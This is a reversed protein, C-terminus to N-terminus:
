AGGPTRVRQARPRSRRAKAAALGRLVRLNRVDAEEGEIREEKPTELLFPVGRLRPDRLLEGFAREGITGLGIHAHRDVRSGAERRSDNLHFARVLGLGITRDVAELMVAVGDERSLDYGAAHVHCTDLCVALRARTRARDLVDRLHEFRCGLCTGQGATGELLIRGGFAPAAAFARDLGEAVLRLGASEGAGRHAGPHLIVGDIGLRACRGLEEALARVSRDRLRRDPTALNLLYGAHSVVAGIRSGNLRARFRAAGEDDVPKGAWQNANATFVQLATMGLPAAREVALHHGGAISLHAGLLLPPAGAARAPM